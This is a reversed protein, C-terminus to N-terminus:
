FSILAPSHSPCFLDWHVPKSVTYTGEAKLNLKSIESTPNWNNMTENVCQFVREIVTEAKARESRAVLVNYKMTMAVGSIVSLNSHDPGLKFASDNLSAKKARELKDQPVHAGFQQLFLLEEYTEERM